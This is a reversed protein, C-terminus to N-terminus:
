GFVVRRGLPPHKRTARLTRLIIVGGGGSFIRIFFSSLQCVVMGNLDLGDVGGGFSQLILADTRATSIVTCIRLPAGLGRHAIVGDM